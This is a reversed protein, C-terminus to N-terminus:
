GPPTPQAGIPKWWILRPITPYYLAVRVEGPPTESAAPFQALVQAYTELQAAYIARQAALFEDLGSPGHNATKYDVIWLASDGPAQPELGARFVRDVRISATRPSAGASDLWAVIGLESAAEPHPSLLWLGFPDRLSNTLAALTDRTLQAVTSPSLGDARLIAAIRPTWSPLEDLLATSSSGSALCAAVVELFAHVANGFSRAAFSGQPRAFEHVAIDAAEADAYSVRHSRAVAFREEPDFTPPLREITAHYGGTAAALNLVLPEPM